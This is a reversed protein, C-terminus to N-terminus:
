RRAAAAETMLARDEEAQIRKVIEYQEAVLRWVPDSMPARARLAEEGDWRECLWTADDNLADPSGDAGGSQEAIAARLRAM